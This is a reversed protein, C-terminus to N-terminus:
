QFFLLKSWVSRQQCLQRKVHQTPKHNSKKWPVGSVYSIRTRDRSWSSGRGFPKTVRELKRAQLIGHVSSGPLSCDMSECLTPCSQLLKVDNTNFIMYFPSKSERPSPSPLIIQSFSMSVHISDPLFRIVLRHYICSVPHKPSTCPSSGSLHYPTPPPLPNLIPFEHVGTASEHWHMAFGICYQLAFYLLFLFKFFLVFCFFDFLDEALSPGESWITKQKERLTLIVTFLNM